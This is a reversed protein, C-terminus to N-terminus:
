KEGFLREKILGLQLLIHVKILDVWRVWTWDDVLKQSVLIKQFKREIADPLSLSEESSVEFEYTEVASRM